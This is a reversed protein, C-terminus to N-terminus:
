FSELNLFNAGDGNLSAFSDASASSHSSSSSPTRLINFVFSSSGKEVVQASKAHGLIGGAAQLEKLLEALSYSEKSMSYNLRFNKYSEPLSMLVIDVQSEGDIDAGLIELENLHSIMKLVHDRVLTGEAMKTNLLARMAVQRGARNQEGFIEKLNMMMDYATAM